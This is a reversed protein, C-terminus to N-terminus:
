GNGNTRMVRSEAGVSVKVDLGSAVKNNSDVFSATLAINETVTFTVAATHYSNVNLIIGQYPYKDTPDYYFVAIQENAVVKNPINSTYNVVGKVSVM